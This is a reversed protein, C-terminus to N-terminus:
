WGQALVHEAIRRGATGDGFPNSWTRPHALVEDAARLVDAPVLGAVLNGGVDVTEPRETSDRLTVCPTRLICCEEQVGGSDTLVLAAHRELALFPVLPAPECLRLEPPLALGFAELRARTRPHSPYLAPLGTKRCVQAVSDLLMALRERQDVNEARHATVLVYRDPEVGFPALEHPDLRGADRFGLVVDAITNGTVLIREDPLGEALLLGRSTETPAYLATCVHDAVVRNIEEPMKRDFSRLGAEVHGVPLHLKVAALAAAVVSNTDGQVLVMGTPEQQFVREAGELIRATQAGHSGSGVGLDHAPAPLQLAEFFAGSMVRDYHQGTNLLYFPVGADRLGRVVPAMKVIEPRTGVVVACRM